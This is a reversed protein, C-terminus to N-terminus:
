PGAASHRRKASRKLTGATMTVNERAPKRVSTAIPRMPTIEKMRLLATNGAMPMM